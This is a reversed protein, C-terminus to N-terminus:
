PFISAGGVAVGALAAAGRWSFPTTLFRLPEPDGPLAYGVNADCHWPPNAAFKYPFLLVDGYFQGASVLPQFIGLEWVYRETNIQQFYLPQYVVYSARVEAVNPQFARKTMTTTIRISDEDPFDLDLNGTAKRIQRFREFKTAESDLRYLENRPPEIFVGEKDTLPRQLQFPGQLPEQLNAPPKPADQALVVWGLLSTVVSLLM